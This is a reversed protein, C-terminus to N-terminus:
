IKLKKVEEVINKMRSKFLLLLPVTIGFFIGSLFMLSTLHRGDIINVQKTFIAIALGIFYTFIIILLTNFYQLYKTYHLDLINKKVQEPPETMKIM